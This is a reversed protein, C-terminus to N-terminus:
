SRRSCRSGLQTFSDTQEPRCRRGRGLAMRCTLPRWPRRDGIRDGHRPQGVPRRCRSPRRAAPGADTTVSAPRPARPRSSSRSMRCNSSESATPIELAQLEYVDRATRDSALNITLSPDDLEITGVQQSADGPRSWTGVAGGSGASPPRKATSSGAIFPLSAQLNDHDRRHRGERRDRAVLTTPRRTCRTRPAPATIENSTPRGSAQQPTM